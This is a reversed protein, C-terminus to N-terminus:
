IDAEYRYLPGEDKIRNLPMKIKKSNHQPSCVSCSKIYNKIEASYGDWYYGEDMVLEKM